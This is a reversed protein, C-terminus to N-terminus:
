ISLDGFRRVWDLLTDVSRTVQGEDLLTKGLIKRLVELVRHVLDSVLLIVIHHLMVVHRLVLTNM